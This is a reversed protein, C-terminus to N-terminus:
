GGARRGAQGGGPVVGGPVADLAGLIRSSAAILGRAEAVMAACEACVAVHEEVRRAEEPSLAGDLWGHVTGEDLHQM